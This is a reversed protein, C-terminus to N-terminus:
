ASMATRHFKAILRLRNLILGKPRGLSPDTIFVFDQYGINCHTDYVAAAAISNNFYKKRTCLVRLYTLFDRSRAYEEPFDLGVYVVYVRKPRTHTEDFEPSDRVRLRTHTHTHTYYLYYIIGNSPYFLEHLDRAIPSAYVLEFIRVTSRSQHRRTHPFLVM